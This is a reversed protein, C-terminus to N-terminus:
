KYKPQNQRFGSELAVMNENSRAFEVFVEVYDMRKANVNSVDNVLKQVIVIMWDRM